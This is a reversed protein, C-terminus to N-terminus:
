YSMMIQRFEEYLKEYDADAEMMRMGLDTLALEGLQNAQEVGDCDFDNDETIGGAVFVKMYSDFIGKDIIKNLRAYREKETGGYEFIECHKLLLSQEGDEASPNNDVVGQVMVAKATYQIIDSTVIRLEGEVDYRSCFPHSNLWAISIDKGTENCMYGIVYVTKGIMDSTIQDVEMLENIKENSGLSDADGVVETKSDVDKIRFSMVRIAFAGSFIIVVCLIINVAIWKKISNNRM